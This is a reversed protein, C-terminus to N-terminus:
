SIFHLFGSALVPHFSSCLPLSFVECGFNSGGIFGGKDDGYAFGYGLLWFCLAAISADIM